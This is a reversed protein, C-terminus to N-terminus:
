NFTTNFLKYFNRKYYLIKKFRTKKIIDDIDDLKWRKLNLQLLVCMDERIKM